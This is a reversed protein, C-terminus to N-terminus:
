FDQPADSNEAGDSGRERSTFGPDMKAV